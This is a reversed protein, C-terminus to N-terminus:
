MLLILLLFRCLAINTVIFDNERKKKTVNPPLRISPGTNALDNIQPRSGLLPVAPTVVAPGMSMNGFQSTMQNVPDQNYANYAPQQPQAYAPQQFQQPQQPQVYASPTGMPSIFQQQQQQPQQQNILAPSGFTQPQEGSYARTIQEPYMRKKKHHESITPSTPQQPLQQQQQVPSQFPRAPTQIPSAPRMLPRQQNPIFNPRVGPPLGPHPPPPTEGTNTPQFGPRVGPQFPPRYGPHPQQQVPPRYGMPRPQQQGSPPRQLPQSAPSQPQQQM